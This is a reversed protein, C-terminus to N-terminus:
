FLLSPNSIEMESVARVILISLEHENEQDHILQQRTMMEHSKNTMEISRVSREHLIKDNKSLDNLHSSDMETDFHRVMFTDALDYDTDGKSVQNNAAAKKAMARTVACAPYLDPIEQEILDVGKELNPKDILLPNEM